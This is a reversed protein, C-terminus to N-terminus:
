DFESAEGMINLTDDDGSPLFTFIILAFTYDTTCPYYFNSEEEMHRYIHTTIVSNRLITERVGPIEPSTNKERTQHTPTHFKIYYPAPTVKYSGPRM